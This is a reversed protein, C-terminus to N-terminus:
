AVTAYAAVAAGIVLVPMYLLHEARSDTSIRLFKPLGVPYWRQGAIRAPWLLPVGTRTCADGLDHALCGLTVPIGLWWGAGVLPWWIGAVALGVALLAGAAVAFVATHTLARHGSRNSHDAPTRTAKHVRASVWAVILAPGLVVRGVKVGLARAIRSSRHDIDPILASVTAVGTSAIAVLTPVPHGLAHAAACGALALACGTAM